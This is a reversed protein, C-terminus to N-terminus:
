FAVGEAIELQQREYEGREVPTVYVDHFKEDDTDTEDGSYNSSRGRQQRLGPSLGRPGIEHSSPSPLKLLQIQRQLMAVEDELQHRASQEHRILTILTSYHEFTLGGSSPRQGAPGPKLTTAISTPRGNPEVSKSDQSIGFTGQHTVPTNDLSSGYITAPSYDMYPAAIRETPHQPASPGPPHEYGLTEVHPFHNSGRDVPSTSGAQLKSIAYEFDMLKIELTIMREELGIHEQSQIDGAPLGFNFKSSAEGVKEENGKAVDHTPKSPDEHISRGPDATPRPVKSKSFEPPDLGPSTADTSDRWYKIEDSRRRWRRWQIPSMRHEKAPERFAGVSRSRRRPNSGSTVAFGINERDVAHSNVDHLGLGTLARSVTEAEQASFIISPLTARRPRTPSEQPTRAPRPPKGKDRLGIGSPVQPAFPCHSGLASTRLIEQTPASASRQPTAPIPLRSVNSGQSSSDAVLMDHNQLKRLQPKSKRLLSISKGNQYSVPHHVEAPAPLSIRNKASKRGFIRRLATRLGGSKRKQPAKSLDDAMSDHYIGYRLPTPLVDSRRPWETQEREYFTSQRYLLRPPSKEPIKETYVHGIFSGPSADRSWSTRPINTSLPQGSIASVNSSFPDNSLHSYEFATSPQAASVMGTNDSAVASLSVMENTPSIVDAM